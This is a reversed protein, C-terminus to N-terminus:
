SGLRDSTRRLRYLLYAVIVVNLVLAVLRFPTVKNLLADIEPILLLTTAVVTLWEAWRRRRFLGYGETGELVGYAIAIVGYEGIKHPTLRHAAGTIRAIGNSTPDLGVHRAITTISKAWDTHTHTVLVIGVGILLVARISREVAIWILLRGGGASDDTDGRV